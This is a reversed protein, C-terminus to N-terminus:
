SLAEAIFGGTMGVANLADDVAMLSLVLLPHMCEPSNIVDDLSVYVGPTRPEAYEPFGVISDFAYVDLEPCPTFRIKSM